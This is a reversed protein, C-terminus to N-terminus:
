SFEGLDISPSDVGSLLWGRSEDETFVPKPSIAYPPSEPTDGLVELARFGIM